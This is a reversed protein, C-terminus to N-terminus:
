DFEIDTYLCANIYQFRENLTTDSIELRSEAYFINENEGNENLFNIQKIDSKSIEDAL